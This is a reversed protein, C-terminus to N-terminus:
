WSSWTSTRSTPACTRCRTSTRASTAARPTPRSRPRPPSVPRRARPPLPSAASAIVKKLMPLRRTPTGTPQGAPFTVRPTM